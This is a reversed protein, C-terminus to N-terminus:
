KKAPPPGLQRALRQNAAQLEASRASLEAGCRTLEAQVQTANNMKRGEALMIAEMRAVPGRAVLKGMYYFVGRAANDRQKPDRAVAQLVMLCRTDATDAASAQAFAPPALGALIAAAAFALIAHRM